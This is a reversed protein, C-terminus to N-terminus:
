RNWAEEALRRVEGLVASINRWHGGVWYHKGCGPCLWRYEDQRVLKLPTNCKPCRTKRPNFYVDIGYRKSVEAIIEPVDSGNVLIVEVGRRLATSALGRDKTIIIRGEKLAKEILERDGGSWYISDYGLIRLWTTINGLMADVIFRAESRM